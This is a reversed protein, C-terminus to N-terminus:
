GDMGKHAGRHSHRLNQCFIAACYALWKWKLGNAIYYFSGGSLNGDKDKKRFYLGLVNESYNTVMGFFASIWM